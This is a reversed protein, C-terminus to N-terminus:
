PKGGLMRAPLFLIARLLEFVGDVAIGLVRFPLLLLWVIPYLVLAILAIPWCLVFLLLWLLLKIM